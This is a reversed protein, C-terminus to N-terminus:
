IKETLGYALIVKFYPFTSLKEIVLSNKDNPSLTRTIAFSPSLLKHLHEM